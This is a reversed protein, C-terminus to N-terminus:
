RGLQQIMDSITQDMMSIVRASAAYAQQYQLLNSAEENLSVGSVSSQQAQLHQLVLGGTDANVNAQQAAVGLASITGAYQAQVTAAQGTAPKEQLQATGLAGSGDEPNPGGSASLSTAAAVKAPDAAVAANVSMSAASTGTFFVEGPKGNADYNATHFANVASMVNSALTNLSDLQGQITKDRATIAGGLQGDSVTVPRGNQDLIDTANPRSADAVTSLAFSTVGQVLSGGGRLSINAAGQPTENYQIGVIQSLQNVLADRKDQLDNPSQGTASVATIQGNLTAISQAITNVQTVLPAIKGDENTQLATLASSAANFGTALATGQAIVVSRSPTDSPNNALGQWATFYSSLLSGFGQASPANYVDSVQALTDSLSQQSSQSGNQYIIQQQIFSDHARKVDAVDVGSGLQGAANGPLDIPDSAQLDVEQRSYGQTSANAINHGTVNLGTQQAELGRLATNIGFFTGPM